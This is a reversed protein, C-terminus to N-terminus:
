SVLCIMIHMPYVPKKFPIYYMNAVRFSIKNDGGMFGGVFFHIEKFM